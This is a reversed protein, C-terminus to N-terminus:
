SIESFSLISKCTLCVKRRWDTENWLVLSCSHQGWNDSSLFSWHSVEGFNSKMQCLTGSRGQSVALSLRLPFIEIKAYQNHYRSVSESQSCLSGQGQFAPKDSQQLHDATCYKRFSWWAICYKTMEPFFDLLREDDQLCIGCLCM